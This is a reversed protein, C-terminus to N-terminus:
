RGMRMPQDALGGMESRVIVNRGAVILACAFDCDIVTVHAIREPTRHHRSDRRLSRACISDKPFEQLSALQRWDIVHKCCVSLQQEPAIRLAEDYRKLDFTRQLFERDNVIRMCM